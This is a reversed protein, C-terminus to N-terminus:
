VEADEWLSWRPASVMPAPEVELLDGRDDPAKTATRTSSLVEIFDRRPVPTRVPGPAPPRAAQSASVDASEPGSEWCARIEDGSLPTRQRDLGCYGM